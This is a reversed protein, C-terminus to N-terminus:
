GQSLLRALRKEANERGRVKAGDPLQFYGGGLHILGEALDAGAAVIEGVGQAVAAEALEPSLQKESGVAFRRQVGGQYIPTRNLIRVLPM